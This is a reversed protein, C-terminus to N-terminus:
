SARRYAREVMDVPCEGDKKVCQGANQTQCASCLITQFAAVKKLQTAELMEDYDVIKNSIPTTTM